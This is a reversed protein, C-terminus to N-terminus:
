TPQAWLPEIISKFAEPPPIQGLCYAALEPDQLELLSEFQARESESLENYGQALFRTLLVDLEKVGRRCRWILRGDALM